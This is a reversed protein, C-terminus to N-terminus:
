TEMHIERATKDQQWSLMTYISIWEFIQLFIVMHSLTDKFVLLWKDIIFFVGMGYFNDETLPVNLDDCEYYKPTTFVQGFKDGSSLFACSIALQPILTFLVLKTM